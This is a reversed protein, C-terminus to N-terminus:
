QVCNHLDFFLPDIFAMHQTFHTHELDVAQTLGVRRMFGSIARMSLGCSQFRRLTAPCATCYYWTQKSFCFQVNGSPIPKRHLVTLELQNEHICQLWINYQVICATYQHMHILTVQQTCPPSSGYSATGQLDSEAFSGSITPSKQPFHGRSILCGIPGRWGTAKNRSFAYLWYVRSFQTTYYTIHTTCAHVSAFVCVWLWVCECARVCVWLCVKQRKERCRKKERLRDKVCDRKRERVCLLVYM